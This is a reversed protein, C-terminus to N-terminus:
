ATRPRRSRRGQDDLLRDVPGQARRAADARAGRPRAADRARAPRHGEPRPRGRGDRGLRRDARPNHQWLIPVTPNEQLTKAFAGKEIVDGYSDVNGFVAAYGEFSGDEGPAEKLELAFSKFQAHAQGAAAPM